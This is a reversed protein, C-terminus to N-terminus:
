SDEQHVLLYNFSHEATVNFVAQASDGQSGSVQIVYQGPNVNGVIFSGTVNVFGTPAKFFSCAQSGPAIVNGSSPSSLSCTGSNADQPLFQSGTVSVHTGTPGSAAKGLSAFGGNIGSLQIFAGATVNFVAQASDGQSGSVQIVYQGEAINGVIFSGTVNVFGTPAKFFSCAQSGPAIVNGSSPSSISCTGSNADGPLFRSGTVSVHTGTPGSAAKGLSAFGGNIGSLQIFAGATVNFIAQASDGASGSVQIVYQGEQVNGVVFSGTVNVFGSPAKFFSCAGNQIIAGNSTSSLSCTGRNADGPLFQSGTVSVHTGTPGSAAKGLSAFGGNIGSLQIFAGATVNFIAQAFDGTNGTVQIVYQGEPVNGVVFSGTVNDYGTFIGTGAFFACAGNVILNGNSPSSLSCTTDSPNFYSGEINM